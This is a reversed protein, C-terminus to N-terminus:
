NLACGPLESLLGLIVSTCLTKWWGVVANMLGALDHLMETQGQYPLRGLVVAILLFFTHAFRLWLRSELIM